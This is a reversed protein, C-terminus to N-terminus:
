HKAYSGTGRKRRNNAQQFDNAWHCNSPEYNGDNDIRNISFGKGPRRGMDAIFAEYSTNWQDCVKIGRGGYAHYDDSSPNNCRARMTKWVYYEPDGNKAAGHKIPNKCVGSYIRSTADEIQLCGCSSTKGSSVDSANASHTVGCDCLFSWVAKGHKDTGVREIGVLRGHRIGTLNLARM